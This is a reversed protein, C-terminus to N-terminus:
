GQTPKEVREFQIRWVFCNDAWQTGPETNISDWLTRYSFEASMTTCGDPRSYDRWQPSGDNNTIDPSQSVGEEEADAETIDQLRECRVDVVRLWIRSLAKPMFISPKWKCGDPLENSDARFFYLPPYGSLAVNSFTEKCYIFDGVGYQCETWASFTNFQFNVWYRHDYKVEQNLITRQSPNQNVIELGKLRRTQTKSGAILAKIMESKFLMGHVKM